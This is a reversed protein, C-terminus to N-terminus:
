YSKSSSCFLGWAIWLLPASLCLGLAFFAQVWYATIGWGWAFRSLPWARRSFFTSGMAALCLAAGPIGVNALYGLYENHANTTYTTLTLGTEPVFRSFTVDLRLAMTGPGGGLIPRERFAEWVARWIEIRHSGFSGDAEGHLLRSAEYLTGSEGPYFYLLALIGLFLLSLAGILRKRARGSVAMPLVLLVSGLLAVAASSAESVALVYLAMGVPLFLLRDWGRGTAASYSLVPVALSLVSALILTNGVTGLYMGSYEVGADAFSWGEPYLRLPDCGMIQGIAVACCLFVSLGLARAYLRRPKALRSILIATVGYLLSSLLGDYRGAGLFCVSFGYPSCLASVISWLLFAAILWLAAGWERWKPRLGRFVCYIFAAYWLLTVILFFFFKSRTIDAYGRLGTFLPFLLLMVLIYIDTARVAIQRAKEESSQM